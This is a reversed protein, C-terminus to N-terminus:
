VGKEFWYYYLKNHMKSTTHAFGYKILLNKLKKVIYDVTVMNPVDRLANNYLIDYYVNVDPYMELNIGDMLMEQIFGYLGYPTDLDYWTLFAYYDPINNNEM